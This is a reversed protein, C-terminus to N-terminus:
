AKKNEVPPDPRLADEYSGAVENLIARSLVADIAQDELVVAEIAALQEKNAYYWSVVEAPDEYTSAMEEVEARVREPSAKIGEKRIVEGVLLGLEVRRQANDRFLEDPLKEADFQAAAAGFQQLMQQRLRDIEQKVLAQPVTIDTKARLANLVRVKTKNRLARKLEREMNARVELRFADFGGEAVGYQSFLADDLPPLKKEAVSNLQIRFVVAAGRLSEAQYDQPMTVPVERSDGVVMGAIGAEFGAVMRGSGLVLDTGSASGGDFEQGDRRGIFDINVRDGSAAPRSVVEWTAQQNRLVDIMREIDPDTVESKTKEISLKGYDILDIEPYVEFTATFEIDRGDGISKPEITPMGAPKLDEQRVAEYFSQSMVEGLVEQRVGAGFRQRVVKMPVKGPRFGKLRVSRAAKELRAAVEAEVRAAPVGITLRRGLGSTIEVSVQM